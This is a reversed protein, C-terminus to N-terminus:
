ATQTQKSEEDELWQIRTRATDVSIGFRKAANSWSMGNALLQRIKRAMDLAEEYSVGNPTRPPRGRRKGAKQRQIREHLLRRAVTPEDVGTIHQAAQDLLEELHSVQASLQDVRTITQESQEKWDQARGRWREYRRIWPNAVGRRVVWVGVAFCASSCAANYYPAVPPWYQVLYGTGCPRCRTSIRHCRDM